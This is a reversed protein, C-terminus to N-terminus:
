CSQSFKNVIATRVSNFLWLLLSKCFERDADGGTKMKTEQLSKLTHGFMVTDTARECKNFLTVFKVADNLIEQFTLQIDTQTAVTSPVKNYNSGRIKPMISQAVFGRVSRRSVMPSGRYQSTILM